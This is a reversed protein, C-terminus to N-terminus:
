HDVHASFQRKFFYERTPLFANAVFRQPMHIQAKCATFKQLTDPTNNSAAESFFDHFGLKTHGSFFSHAIFTIRPKVTM